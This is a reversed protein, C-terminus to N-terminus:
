SAGGVGLPPDYMSDLDGAAFPLDELVRGVVRVPVLLGRNAVDQWGRCREGDEFHIHDAAGSPMNIRAVPKTLRYLKYYRGLELADDGRLASPTWTALHRGESM